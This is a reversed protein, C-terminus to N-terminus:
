GRLEILVEAEDDADEDAAGASRTPLGRDRLAVLCLRAELRRHGANLRRGRLATGPEAAPVGGEERRRGMALVRPRPPRARGVAARAAHMAGVVHFATATEADRAFTAHGADQRRKRPSHRAPSAFRPRPVFDSQINAGVTSVCNLKGDQSRTHSRLRLCFDGDDLARGSSAVRHIRELLRTTVYAVEVGLRCCLTASRGAPGRRPAGTGRRLLDKAYTDRSRDPGTDPDRRSREADGRAAESGNPPAGNKADGSSAGRARARGSSTEASM